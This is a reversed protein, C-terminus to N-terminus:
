YEESNLSEAEEVLSSIEDKESWFDGANKIKKYIDEIKVNGYVGLTGLLCVLSGGLAEFEVQYDDHSDKLLRLVGEGKLNKQTIQTLRDLRKKRSM